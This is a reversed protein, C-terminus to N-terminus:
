VNLWMKLLPTQQRSAIIREAGMLNMNVAVQGKSHYDLSLIAKKSVLFKRNVRFFDHPDLVAELESLSEDTVYKRKDTTVLYVLSDDSFFHNIETTKVPILKQGQKVLFQSKYQKAAHLKRFEEYISHSGTAHFMNRTKELNQFAKSVMEERIPKLLYAIGNSDFAETMYQNYATTFVVPSKVAIENFINFASGDSLEIDMFILDPTVSSLILISERISSALPLFSCGNKVHSIYNKLQEAHIPENEIILIKM